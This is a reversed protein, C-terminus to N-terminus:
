KEGEKDSAKVASAYEMQTSGVYKEVKIKEEQKITVNIGYIKTAEEVAGGSMKLGTDMTKPNGIAKIIYPPALRTGNVMITPGVCRIESMAVIREGNVSIAEAGSAKLENVFTRINSDHVIGYNNYLGSDQMEKTPQTDSLSVTVGKGSVECLGAFAEAATLKKDMIKSYDDESAATKRFSEITEAQNEIEEKLKENKKVEDVYYKELTARDVNERNKIEMNKRVGKIQWTIVFVILFILLSVAIDFSIKRRNM